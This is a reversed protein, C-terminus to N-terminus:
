RRDFLERDLEDDPLRMVDEDIENARRAAESEALFRDREADARGKREASKLAIWVIFILVLILGGIAAYITM